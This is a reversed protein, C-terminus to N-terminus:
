KGKELVNNVVHAVSHCLVEETSRDIPIAAWDFLWFMAHVIEHSLTAYERPNRPYRPIWVIPVYGTKYFCRGRTEYGQQQESIAQEILEPKNDDEFVHAVYKVTNDYNGIVVRVTFDFLGMHTDIAKLGLKNAIKSMPLRAYPAARKKTHLM